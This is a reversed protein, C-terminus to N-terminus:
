TKQMVWGCLCTMKQTRTLARMIETTWTFHSTDTVVWGIKNADSVKAVGILIRISIATPSFSWQFHVKGVPSLWSARSPSGALNM